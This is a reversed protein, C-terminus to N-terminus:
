AVRRLVSRQLHQGTNPQIMRRQHKPLVRVLERPCAAARASRWPGPSHASVASQRVFRGRRQIDGDLRLNEVQHTVQLTFKPHGHQQNRMVQADDRLHRLVDRHHIGPLDDFIRWRLVQKM